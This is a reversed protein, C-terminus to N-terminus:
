NCLGDPSQTECKNEIWENATGATGGGSSLDLADAGGDLGNSNSVKNYSFENGTTDGLAAIGSWVCGLVHNKVVCNGSAGSDLRICDDRITDVDGAHKVRNGDVRNDTSPGNGLWDTLVIGTLQTNKIRNYKIDSNTSSGVFIGFGTTDRIANEDGSFGDSILVSLGANPLAPVVTTPFDCVTCSGAGTIRNHRVTVNDADIVLVVDGGGGSPSRADFGEVTAGDATILFAIPSGMIVAKHKKISRVTVAKDVAVQETYTGPCVLVTDGGSAASIGGNVSTSAPTAGDKCSTRSALGDQDVLITAASSRLPACLTAVVSLFLVVSVTGLARGEESKMLMAIEGRM